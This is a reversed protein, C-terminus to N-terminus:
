IKPKIIETKIIKPQLSTKDKTNIAMPIQNHINSFFRRQAAIAIREPIHQNKREVSHIIGWKEWAGGM